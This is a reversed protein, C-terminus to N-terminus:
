GRTEEAPRQASISHPSQAAPGPGQLPLRGCLLAPIEEQKNTQKNTELFARLHKRGTRLSSWFLYVTVSQPDDDQPRLQNGPAVGWTAMHGLATPTPLPEAM